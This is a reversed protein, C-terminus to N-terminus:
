RNTGTHLYPDPHPSLSIRKFQHVMFATAFLPTLLNVIPISVLFAILFGSLFVRLRYKERLARTEAYSLHRLAVLEFYERGLLYGNAVYFIVLNVGPVLLLFLVGINVFIVVLTFKLAIMVSRGIPLERGPPDDPYFRAEVAAAIDDLFLGAFLSTIPVLLFIAGFFVGLGAAIAALTSLWENPIDTFYSLAGEAAFGIAIFLGITLGLSRILVARFPKSFLQALTKELSAYM